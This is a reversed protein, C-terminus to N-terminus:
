WVRVFRANCTKMSQESSALFLERGEGAFIDGNSKVTAEFCQSATTKRESSPKSM